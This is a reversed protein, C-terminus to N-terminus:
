LRWYPAKVDQTIPLRQLVVGIVFFAVPRQIGQILDPYCALLVGIQFCFLYRQADYGSPTLWAAVILIFLLGFGILKDRSTIAVQIPLLLSCIAEIYMTWTVRNSQFDILIFNKAIASGTIPTGFAFVYWDSWLLTPVKESLLYRVAVIALISVWM